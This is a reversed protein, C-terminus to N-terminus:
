RKFLLLRSLWPVSPRFGATFQRLREHQQATAHLGGMSLINQEQVPVTMAAAMAGAVANYRVNDSLGQETCWRSAITKVKQMMAPDRECLLVREQVLRALPAPCAVATAVGRAQEQTVEVWPGGSPYVGAPADMPDPETWRRYVNIALWTAGAIAIAPAFARWLRLGNTAHAIVTSAWRPLRGSALRWTWAMRTEYFPVHRNVLRIAAQRWWPLGHRCALYAANRFSASVYGVPISRGMAAFALTALPGAIGPLEYRTANDSRPIYFRLPVDEPSADMEPAPAPDGNPKPHPPHYEYGQYVIPLNPHRDGPNRGIPRRPPGGDGGGPPPNPGGGAGAAAPIPAPQQPPAPPGAPPNAPVRPRRPAPAPPPQGSPQPAQVGGTGVTHTVVTGLPTVRPTAPNGQTGGTPPGGTTGFTVGIPPPTAGDPGTIRPLEM